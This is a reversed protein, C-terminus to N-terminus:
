GASILAGQRRGDGGAEIKKLMNQNKQLFHLSVM